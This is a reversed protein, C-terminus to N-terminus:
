IKWTTKKNSQSSQYMRSLHYSIRENTRETIVYEFKEPNQFNKGGVYWGIIISSIICDSDSKSM